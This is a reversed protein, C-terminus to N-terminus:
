HIFTLQTSPRNIGRSRGHPPPQQHPLALLDPAKRTAHWERIHGAVRAALTVSDPGYAAVGLEYENPSDRKTSHQDRRTLYALTAEDVIAPSGGPLAHPALQSGDGAALGCAGPERAALSLWLGALDQSDGILTRTWLRCDPGDHLFPSLAAPDINQDSDWILTPRTGTIPLVACREHDHARQGHQTSLDLPAASHFSAYSSSLHEPRRRRFQLQHTAGRLRLLMVLRGVDIPQFSDSRMGRDTLLQHWAPLIDRQETTVVIRHYPAHDLIGKRRTTIITTVSGTPGAQETLIDTLHGPGIELVRHGPRVELDSVFRALTRQDLHGAADPTTGPSVPAAHAPLSRRTRTPRNHTTGDTRAHTPSPSTSRRREAIATLQCRRQRAVLDAADVGYRQALAVAVRATLPRNGSLMKAITARKYGLTAAFQNQNLGTTAILCSIVDVASANDDVDHADPPLYPTPATGAAHAHYRAAALIALTARDQRGLMDLPDLDHHQGVAYALEPSIRVTGNLARRLTSSSVGASTAFAERSMGSRVYVDNLVDLATASAPHHMGNEKTHQTSMRRTAADDPTSHQHTGAPPACAERDSAGLTQGIDATILM